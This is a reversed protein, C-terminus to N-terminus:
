SGLTEAIRPVLNELAYQQALVTGLSYASALDGDIVLSRGDAVAPVREFFRDGTLESSDIFIPFAVVLEADVLDLQETSIAVTFGTASTDLAAVEPNQVFGLDQLFQVALDGVERALVLENLGLPGAVAFEDTRGVLVVREDGGM